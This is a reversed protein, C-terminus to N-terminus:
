PEGLAVDGLRSLFMDVPTLMPGIGPRHQDAYFAPVPCGCERMPDSLEALHAELADVAPLRITLEGPADEVFRVKRVGDPLRAVGRLQAALEPVGAPRSAPDAAWDAVLRGLEVHDLIELSGRAADRRTRDRDPWPYAADTGEGVISHVSELYDRLVDVEACDPNGGGGARQGNRGTDM